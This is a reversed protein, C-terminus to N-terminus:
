ASAAKRGTLRTWWSEGRHKSLLWEVKKTLRDADMAGVVVDVIQGDMVLATTPLAQVHFPAALEPHADTNVKYFAVPQGEYRHAVAEFQPAMARCPACWPAWFDIIAPGAGPAMVAEVAPISSLDKPKAM